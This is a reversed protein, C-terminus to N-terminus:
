DDMAPDPEAGRLLVWRPRGFPLEDPEVWSGNTAQSHPEEPWYTLMSATPEEIRLELELRDM